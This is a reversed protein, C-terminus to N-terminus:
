SDQMEKESKRGYNQIANVMKPLNKEHLYVPNIHQKSYQWYTGATQKILFDTFFREWSIYAKSDIYNEPAELVKAVANNESFHAKLLLWEFSEPLFLYIKRGDEMLHYIREIEAGFAAGDAVVICAKESCALLLRYVNSKGQASVCQYKKGYVAEFFEFGSKSDEIVMVASDSGYEQKDAEYLPYFENYIQKFGAYKQSIRIGYIEQVSYPLNPLNYRTILVFYNDSAGVAAAFEDSGIFKEGEDIFVISDSISQLNVQWRISDLVVCKKACNVTIGSAVGNQEYNSLMGILTTKGTASDGRVVTINRRIDFEFRLRKNFITIRYQGKM